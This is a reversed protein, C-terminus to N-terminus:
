GAADPAAATRLAQWRDPLLDDLRSAPHTSIRALVDQLYAWPDIRLRKCTMTLTFLTAATHGGAESGAFLWNKRGIVVSKIAREAVNNDIALRGDEVYRCLAEWNSRAYAIAQGIPSKPLAHAAQDDLWKEFRALVPQARTQRLVRRQAADLKQERADDEVQYLQKITALAAHALTPDSTRAEHFKRRAHAWCAVEHITGQSALYIGDYGSFADAQLYGAFGKLFDAPGDRKRTMTFDYVNYRHEEDGLYVWLRGTSLTKTLPDQVKLPTDDTHLVASQRILEAMRKTIPTLLTAAAAMWGCLTQRTLEVGQRQLIGEQRYLPLHDAYKSVIVHAVLGPGALGKDLPQAPMPAISVGDQCHKCAYKPRIHQTVFLSAPQYDLQESIEEGIRCKTQGCGSCIKEAEAVDHVQQERRLNDPLKQRGHPRSKRKPQDAPTEAAPENGAAPTATSASPDELPFLLLQAPDFREAKPGYLRRLLQDLRQAIQERQHRESKLTALLELIMQQCTALDTPLHATDVPPTKSPNNAAPQQVDM